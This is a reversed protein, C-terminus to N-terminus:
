AMTNLFKEISESLISSCGCLFTPSSTGRNRRPEAGTQAAAQSFVWQKRLNRKVQPQNRYFKSCNRCSKGVGAGQMQASVHSISIEMILSSTGSIECFSKLIVFECAFLGLIIATFHMANIAIYYNFIHINFLIHYLQTLICRLRM